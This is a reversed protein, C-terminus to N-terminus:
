TILAAIAQPFDKRLGTLTNLVFFSPLSILFTALLLLPVKVASFLVQELRGPSTVSFTGMVCGYFAGFLLILKIRRSLDGDLHNEGRLIGGAHQLVGLM